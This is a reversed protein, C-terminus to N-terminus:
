CLLIRRRDACFDTFQKVANHAATTDHFGDYKAALTTHYVAHALKINPPMEDGRETYTFPIDIGAIYCAVRHLAMYWSGQMHHLHQMSDDSVIGGFSDRKDPIESKRGSKILKKTDEFDCWTYSVNLVNENWVKSTDAVKVRLDAAFAAEAVAATMAKAVIAQTAKEAAVHGM